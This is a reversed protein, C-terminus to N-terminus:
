PVFCLLMRSFPSVFSQCYLMRWQGVFAVETYLHLCCYMNHSPTNCSEKCVVHQLRSLCCRRPTDLVPQDQRCLLSKLLTRRQLGLHLEQLLSGEAINIDLLAQRCEMHTQM